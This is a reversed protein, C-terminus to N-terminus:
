GARPRFHRKLNAPFNSDLYQDSTAGVGVIRLLAVIDALTVDSAPDFVYDAGRGGKEIMRAIRNLAEAAENMSM